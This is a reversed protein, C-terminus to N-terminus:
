PGLGTIEFRAGGSQAECVDIQWGHADVIAAVIALGFGTGDRSTTHGWEFVTERQDVPIGNGDDEFYFGDADELTGVCVTVAEGCHTHTNEFLNSFLEEMRSRDAVFRTSSPVELTAADLDFDMWVRRVLPELEVATREGVLDGQRALDLLDSLMEDMQAVAEEIADFHEEAGTERAREAHGSVTALPNRLDHSIINAFQDLRDVKEELERRHQVRDSVDRLMAIMRAPDTGDEGADLAAGSIETPVAEGDKTLCTLGDTFGSGEQYVQSIFEERVREIDDPHIDEPHMSLLEERSYGLLDCAAPNVDLFSEAELDVIMVADNNHEFIKRYREEPASDSTASTSASRDSSSHDRDGDESMKEIFTRVDEVYITRSRHAIGAFPWV